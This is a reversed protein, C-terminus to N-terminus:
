GAIFPNAGAAPEPGSDSVPYVKNEQDEIQEEL